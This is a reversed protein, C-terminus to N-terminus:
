FSYRFNFSFYQTDKHGGLFHLYGLDTAFGEVVQYSVVPNIGLKATRNLRNTGCFGVGANIGTSLRSSARYSYGTLFSHINAGGENEKEESFPRTAQFKDRAVQLLQLTHRDNINYKLAGGLRWGANNDVDLSSGPVNVGVMVDVQLKKHQSLAVLGTTCAILLFLFKSM